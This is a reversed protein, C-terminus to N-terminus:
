PTRTPDAVNRVWYDGRAEFQLENNKLNTSGPATGEYLHIPERVKVQSQSAAGACFLSALAIISLIRKM